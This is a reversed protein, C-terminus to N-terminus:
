KRQLFDVALAALSRAGTPLQDEDIDFLASHQAPGQCIGQGQAARGPLLLLGARGEPVGLLGGVCRGQPDGHVQRGHGPEARAALGAHAARPNTTVPYAVPGFRVSAKVGSAAAISDATTTM